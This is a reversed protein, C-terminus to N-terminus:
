KGPLSIATAFQDTGFYRAAVERARDLTVSEIRSDEEAHHNYGLGLLEDMCTAFAVTGLDQRAIKNHGTLKAKARRLEEATLGEKALRKAQSTLEEEVQAASEATTGAYFAFCGPIRGAFNQTGVYYALGLEERIKLFLRSGMDNLAESILDLVVRDVHGLTCGSFGLTVVAQEKETSASDRKADPLPTVKPLNILPAPSNWKALDAEIQERVRAADIDGFVAMVANAPGTLTTYHASIQERTLSEVAETEGLNDLGYGTDGFILRRLKKLTHSLLHDRQLQIAALQSTREREVEGSDFAPSLLVDLFVAQGLATDESLIDLSVGFSNNGSYTDISGGASEIESAIVSATRKATGKLMSRSMLRTLGSTATTESLVGGLLGMRFHAFPLRSDEKLLLRLDNPLEIKEIETTRRPATRAKPKPRSGAPTLAYLTQNETTLYRKAVAQLTEPKVARAAELQKRSFDLDGASLWSSGLDAARGQMTKLASLNGATFQKIAKALEPEGALENKFRALEVLMAEKAQALKDADAVASMGFLGAQEGAYTWADVSHVLAQTDRVERYLRSSLGGGLLTSLVELAPIDDHRVNPIHWALHFHAHEFPGEDIVERAAVQRPEDTLLVPSLPRASQDAYSDNIWELVEDPEIAGAMVLFCNNPAYRERYYALLDDRTLKDFIDRNGIVTHRYPSKTYATEFLRRGARRSPDDNGMDMERRIVDLEGALEDEPLSANQMIDCLVETALKAGTDPITVHYVTRDFSTYANMHGGADQISHDIELGTRNSTGKFLMHELVHSMGAGLWKGEHISGTRCWAQVSVVPATDDPQLIVQLGNPLTLLSASCPAIDVM